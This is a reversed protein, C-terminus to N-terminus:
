TITTKNKLYKIAKLMIDESDKFVGLGHNCERCLMGRVKGTAHCHDIHKAKSSPFDQECIDCKDKSNLIAYQEPTTNYLLSARQEKRCMKCTAERNDISARRVYFM